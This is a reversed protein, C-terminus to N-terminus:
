MGRFRITRGDALAIEVPPAGKMGFPLEVRAPTSGTAARHEDDATLFDDLLLALRQRELRWHLARGTRGTRELEDFAVAAIAQLRARQAASWPIAPAPPGADIVEQLFVELIEHLGSGRDLAS